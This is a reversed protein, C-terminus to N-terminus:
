RVPGAIQAQILPISGSCFFGARRGQGMPPQEDKRLTPLLLFALAPPNERNQNYLPKEVGRLDSFNRRPRFALAPWTV